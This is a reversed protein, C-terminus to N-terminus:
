FTKGISISGTYGEVSNLDITNTHSDGSGSPTSTLVIDEFDTYNMEARIFLGNDLNKEYGAGILYGELDANGYSSGTALSENTILDGAILGAKIYLGMENYISLYATTINELDVQVNQARDAEGTGGQALTKSTHTSETTESELAYPVHNLGFRLNYPLHIEGFISGYGIYAEDSKSTERILSGSESRTESGSLDFFGATGSAGLSFEVSNAQTMSVMLSAILIKTFKKM